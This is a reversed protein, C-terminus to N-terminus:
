KYVIRISKIFGKEAEVDHGAVLWRHSHLSDNCLTENWGRISTRMTEIHLLKKKMHVLMDMHDQKRLALILHLRKRRFCRMFAISEDGAPHSSCSTGSGGIWSLVLPLKHNIVEFNHLHVLLFINSIGETKKGTVISRRSYGAVVGYRGMSTIASWNLDKMHKFVDKLNKSSKNNKLVGTQSISIFDSTSPSGSVAAVDTLVPVEQLTLADLQILETNSNFFFVKNQEAFVSFHNMWTNKCKHMLKDQEYVVVQGSGLVAVYRQAIVFFAHCEQSKLSLLQSVRGNKM